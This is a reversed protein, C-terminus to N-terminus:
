LNEIRASPLQMSPDDFPDIKQVGWPDHFVHSQQYPSIHNVVEVPPQYAVNEYWQGDQQASQHYQEQVHAAQSVPTPQAQSLHQPLQQYQIIPQQEVHSTNHLAYTANQASQHTYYPDQSVPSARSTSSYSSPSSRLMEQSHQHRPIHYTQIPAPNTNMTAVGPNNQEPIYYSAHAPLSPARHVMSAPHGHEPITNQYTPGGSLSHRHAYNQQGPYSDLHQQGFDAFSHARHMQHAHPMPQAPIVLAQPWHLQSSHQPTSPSEGTDSDSTEGDDLESSHIGRQHSRRQHKVM